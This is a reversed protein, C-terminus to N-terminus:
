LDDILFIPGSSVRPVPIPFLLQLPRLDNEETVAHKQSFTYTCLNKAPAYKDSMCYRSDTKTRCINSNTPFINCESDVRHLNFVESTARFFLYWLISVFM